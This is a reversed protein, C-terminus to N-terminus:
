KSVKGANGEAKLGSVKGDTMLIETAACETIVTGGNEEFVKVFNEIVLGTCDPAGYGEYTVSWIAYTLDYGQYAVDRTMYKLGKEGMYLLTDYSNEAFAKLNDYVPFQDDATDQFIGANQNLRFNIFDETNTGENTPVTLGGAATMSTGGLYPLKEILVVNAGEDQAAM